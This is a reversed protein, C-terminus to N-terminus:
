LLNMAYALRVVDAHSQDHSGLFDAAETPPLALVEVVHEGDPPDTPSAM